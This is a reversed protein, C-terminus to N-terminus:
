GRVSQRWCIAASLKFAEKSASGETMEILKKAALYGSEYRPVSITTLGAAAAAASDDFGVVSIDEPVRLRHEAFARIAGIAMNDNACVLVEPLDNGLIMIKAAQYGSEERYNGHFYYKRDFVIDHLALTDELGAFREQTDLTHEVGGMFGFRRFGKNVLQQVMECMIPYNDVIVSKTFGRPHDIIRDMLVVPLDPKAIALLDEDTMSSDLSIIGCALRNEIFHISSKNTCIMFDYGNETLCDSIGNIIKLYFHRDFDSFIFMVTKSHSMKAKKRLTNPLYGVEACIKLIKDKTDPGVNSRENLVNSVTSVSVGALEAIEKLGPM